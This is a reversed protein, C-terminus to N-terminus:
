DVCPRADRHGVSAALEATEKFQMSDVFVASKDTERCVAPPEHTVDRFITVKPFDPVRVLTKSRINGELLNTLAPRTRQRYRDQPDRHTQLQAGWPVPGIL